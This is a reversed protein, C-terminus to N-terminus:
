DRPGRTAMGLAHEGLWEARRRLMQPTADEIL